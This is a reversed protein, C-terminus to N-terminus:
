IEFVQAVLQSEMFSKYNERIVSLANLVHEKMLRCAKSEYKNRIANFIRSHYSLSSHLHNENQLSHYSFRSTQKHLNSAVIFLRYNGAVLMIKCHFSLHLEQYFTVNFPSRNISSEMGNLFPMLEFIEKETIVDIALETSLEYM